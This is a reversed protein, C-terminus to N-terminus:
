RILHMKPILCPLQDLNIMLHILNMMADFDLQLWRFCRAGDASRNSTMRGDSLVEWGRVHALICEDSTTENM